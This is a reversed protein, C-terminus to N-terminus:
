AKIITVIKKTADLEIECGIIYISWESDSSSINLSKDNISNVIVEM